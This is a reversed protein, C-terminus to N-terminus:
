TRSSLRVKGCRRFSYLAASGTKFHVLITSIGVFGSNIEGDVLAGDFFTDDVYIQNRIVSNNGTCSIFDM